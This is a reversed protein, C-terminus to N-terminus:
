LTIHQRNAEFRAIFDVSIIGLGLGYGTIRIMAIEYNTIRHISM